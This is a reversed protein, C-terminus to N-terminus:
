AADKKACQFFSLIFPCPKKILHCAALFYFGCFRVFSNHANWVKMCIKNVFITKSANDGRYGVEVRVVIRRGTVDVACM